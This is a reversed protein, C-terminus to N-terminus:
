DRCTRNSHKKKWSKNVPGGNKGTKTKQQPNYQRTNLQYNRNVGQVTQWKM